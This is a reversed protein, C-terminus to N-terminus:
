YVICNTEIICNACYPASRPEQEASAKKKLARGHALHPEQEPHPKNKKVTCGHVSCPEPEARLKNNKIGATM